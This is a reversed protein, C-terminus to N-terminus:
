ILGGIYNQILLIVVAFIVVKFIMYGTEVRQYTKDYGKNMEKM